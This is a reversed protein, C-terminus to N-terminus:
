SDLIPSDEESQDNDTQDTPQIDDSPASTDGCLTGPQVPKNPCQAACQSSSSPSDSNRQRKRLVSNDEASASWPPRHVRGPFNRDWQKCIIAAWAVTASRLGPLVHEMDEPPQGAASVSTEPTPLLLESAPRAIARQLRQNSLSDKLCILEQALISGLVPVSMANGWIRRGTTENFPLHGLIAPFGQLAAREHLRLPRDLSLNAIGEGLAFVHIGPGSARLCQCRDVRVACSSWVTRETPDRGIEVFAFSGRNDENAMDKEFRQKMKVLCDSQLSSVKGPVNDQTDLIECPKVRRAFSPPATPVHLQYLKARRGIIYVRERNQPLGYELTNIKIASILWQQKLRERLTALLMDLASPNGTKPKHCIGPVNELTFFCLESTAQRKERRRDLECIVDICREFPRSRSDQMALRQGCASFPPCPPGGVVINACPFSALSTKMIDGRSCGLNVKADLKGYVTRYIPALDPSIDWAGALVVKHKGLLLKLAISATGAGACLEMVSLGPPFNILSAVSGQWVSDNTWPPLIGPFEKVDLMSVPLQMHSAM